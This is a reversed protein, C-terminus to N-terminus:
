FVPKLHDSPMLRLLWALLLASIIEFYTAAVSFVRLCCTARQVLQTNHTVLHWCTYSIHIWEACMSLVKHRATLPSISPSACVISPSACVISPSACVISPSACVISPTACVLSLTACVITPTGRVISPTACVIPHTACVIHRPHLLYIIYPNNRCRNLAIAVLSAM